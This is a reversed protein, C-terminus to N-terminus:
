SQLLLYILFQISILQLNLKGRNSHAVVSDPDMQICLSYKQIAGHFDGNAYLENGKQREIEIDEKTSMIDKAEDNTDVQKSKCPVITASPPSKVVSKSPAPLKKGVVVTSKDKLSDAPPGEDLETEGIGSSTSNTISTTGYDKKSFNNSQFPRHTEEQDNKSKKREIKKMNNEWEILDKLAVNQEALNRRINVQAQLTNQQKTESAM